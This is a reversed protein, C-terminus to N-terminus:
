GNHKRDLTNYVKTTLDPNLYKMADYLRQLYDGIKEDLPICNTLSIFRKQTMPNSACDAMISM